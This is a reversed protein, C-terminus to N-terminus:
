PFARRMPANGAGASIPWPHLHHLTSQSTDCAHANQGHSNAYLRRIRLGIVAVARSSGIGRLGVGGLASVRNAALANRAGSRKGVPVTRFGGATTAKAVISGERVPSIFLHLKARGAFRKWHWAPSM